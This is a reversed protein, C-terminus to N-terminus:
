ELGPHGPPFTVNRHYCAWTGDLDFDHLHPVEEHAPSTVGAPIAAHAIANGPAACPAAPLPQPGVALVSAASLLSLAIAIALTLIARKM